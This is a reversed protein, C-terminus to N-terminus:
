ERRMRCGQNQPASVFQVVAENMRATLVRTFIKYDGNLLTIPRYNRPDRREKKKYLLSITGDTTEAPFSGSAKSENLMNTLPIAILRSFNKYFKNPIRDPGPSKGTPLTNLM